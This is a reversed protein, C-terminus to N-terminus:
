LSKQMNALMKLSKQSINDVLIQATKVPSELLRVYERHDNKAINNLKYKITKYWAYGEYGSTANYIEDDYMITLAQVLAPIVVISNMISYKSKDISNDMYWKYQLKPLKVSITEYEMHCEMTSIQDDASIEVISAAKKIIDKKYLADFKKRNGVGIVENVHISFNMGHYDDSFNPDSYNPIDKLAILCPCLEVKEHITSSPIFFSLNGSQLIEIKRLWTSVCQVQVAYAIENNELLEKFYNSEIAFKLNVRYGDKENNVTIDCQFLTSKFDDLTPKLVPYPFNLSSNLM